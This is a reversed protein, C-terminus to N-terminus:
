LTVAYRWRFSAWGDRHWRVECWHSRRKCCSERLIWEARLRVCRRARFPRNQDYSETPFVLGADILTLKNDVSAKSSDPTESRELHRRQDQMTPQSSTSDSTARLLDEAKTNMFPLRGKWDDPPDGDKKCEPGKSDHPDPVSEADVSESRIERKADDTSMMHRFYVNM